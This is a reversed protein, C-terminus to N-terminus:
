ESRVFSARPRGAREDEEAQATRGRADGQDRLVDAAVVGAGETDGLARGVHDRRDHRARGDHNTPSGSRCQRARWAAPRKHARTEEIATCGGKFVDTNLLRQHGPSTRQEPSSPRKQVHAGFTGAQRNVGQEVHRFDGTRQPSKPATQGTSPSRCSARWGRGSAERRGQESSM